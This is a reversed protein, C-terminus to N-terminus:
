LTVPSRKNVLVTTEFIRIALDTVDHRSQEDVHKNPELLSLSNTVHLSTISTPTTHEPVIQRPPRDHGGGRLAIIDLEDINVNILLVVRSAIHGVPHGYLGGM